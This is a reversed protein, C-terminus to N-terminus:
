CSRIDDIDTLAYSMNAILEYLHPKWRGDHIISYLLAIESSTLRVESSHRQVRGNQLAEHSVLTSSTM